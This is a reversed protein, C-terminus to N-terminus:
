VPPPYRLRQRAWALGVLTVSDRLDGSLCRAWAEELPVRAIELAETGEPSAAGQRLGTALYVHSQQSSLGQGLYFSGLPEWRDAVIGTEERLERQAAALPEEDPEAGGSPISWSYADVPYAWEGVLVVAGAEDVAVVGANTPVEVVYWDGSQGDPRIVRDHRVRFYPNAHAIETALRRWPNRM